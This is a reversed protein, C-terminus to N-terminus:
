HPGAKKVPPKKLKPKIIIQPVGYDFCYLLGFRKLSCSLLMAVSYMSWMIEWYIFWAWPYVILKLNFVSHTAKKKVTLLSKKHIEM